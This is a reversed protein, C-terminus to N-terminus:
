SSGGGGVVVVKAFVLDRAGLGITGVTRRTEPDVELLSGVMRDVVLLMRGCAVTACPVGAIAITGSAELTRADLVSLRRSEPSTGSWDGVVLRDGVRVASQAGHLLGSPSGSAAESGNAAVRQVAAAAGDAGGGRLLLLTGEPEAVVTSAPPCLAATSLDSVRLRVVTEPGALSSRGATWVSDAGASWVGPGEPVHTTGALRARAVDVRSVVMGAPGVMGHLVVARGDVCVVNGPNPCGLGVYRVDGSRVDTIGLVDDADDGVGGAQATVVLGSSTDVAVDTALSRLHIRRVVRRAGVDAVVLDSGGDTVTLVAALPGVVPRATGAGRMSVLMVSAVALLVCLGIAVAVTKLAKIM